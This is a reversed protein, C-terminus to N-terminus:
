LQCIRRFVQLFVQRASVSEKNRRVYFVGFFAVTDGETVVGHVILQAVCFKQDVVVSRIDDRKAVAPVIRQWAWFDIRM